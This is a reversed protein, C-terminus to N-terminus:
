AYTVLNGWILIDAVVDIKSFHIDHLINSLEGIQKKLSFPITM